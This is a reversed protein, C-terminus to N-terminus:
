AHQYSTQTLSVKKEVAPSQYYLERTENETTKRRNATKATKAAKATKTTKKPQKSEKTSKATQKAM